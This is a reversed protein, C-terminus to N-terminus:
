EKIGEEFVGSSFNFCLDNNLVNLLYNASAGQKTMCNALQLDTPIWCFSSIEKQDIMGRLVCIDIFLRKDDVNTSSYVSNVLNKNDCYVITKLM